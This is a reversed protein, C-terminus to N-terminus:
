AAPAARLQTPGSSPLPSAVPRRARLLRPARPPRGGTSLWSGALILLMGAVSAPGLSEHLFVVGALVSIIPAVYTIVTAKGAGVQGILAYFAVYGGATSGLALAAIAGLSTASPVHDPLAFLVTPALTLAVCSALAGCVVGFAPLDAFHRKYYLAGGAYSLAAALVLLAGVFARLDGAVEFGLLAGVGTIGVGLGVVRLGTVREAADFRLALAAVLVPVSAVLTGALGSPIAMLGVTVLLTPATLDLVALWFLARVRGRLPTLLGRRLAVPLLVATAIVARAFVTFLPEVDTLALKVFLYPVGWAVSALAFLLVTSGRRPM